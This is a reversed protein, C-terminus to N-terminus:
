RPLRIRDVEVVTAPSKVEVFERDRKRLELGPRPVDLEAVRQELGVRLLTRQGLVVYGVELRQAEQAPHLQQHPDELGALM